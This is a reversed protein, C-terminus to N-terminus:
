SIMKQEEVLEGTADPLQIAVLVLEGDGTNHMAHRVPGDPLPNLKVQGSALEVTGTRHGDPGLIDAQGGNVVVTLWPVRHTHLPRTAGAPIREVWVRAHPTDVVLPTGIEEWPGNVLDEAPSRVPPKVPTPM